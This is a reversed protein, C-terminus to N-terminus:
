YLSASFAIGIWRPLGPTYSTWSQTVHYETNFANKVLITADFRRDQRGLGIGFDALGYAPIWAYESNSTDYNVRGIYHYNFNAHFLRTSLVPLSYEGSLNGSFKPANALTQGNANYFPVALDGKEVPNPLLIDSDYFAHNWAGALRLTLHKIGTYAADLEFGRAQVLPANGTISTYQPTGVQQTLVPDLIYVTQQFNDLFDVYIDANATLTDHLYSGKLGLEYANSSEPAVLRSIPIGNADVGSIQSIGAKAGHQWSLYSTIQPTFAYSFSVNGSPLTGIYPQAEVTPYQKNYVIGARIAKAAAVQAQEGATLAGYTAVNFYHQAVSNALALQGANNITLAGAASTNFGSYAAPYLAFAAPSKASLPGPDLAAGFGDDSIGNNQRTRRDERTLRYGTTVTFQNGLHWHIQGFAAATRNYNWTVNYAQVRNLSDEMLQLGATNADLTTYQAYNADYAGADSGYRARVGPNNNWASTQLFFLGAKYDFFLSKDSTASFEESEQRYRADSGGDQTVNWEGVGNSAQFLDHEFGTTSQLTVHPLDWTAKLLGGYSANLVGKEDEDFVPFSLYNQYANPDAQTFYSRTYKNQTTNQVATRVSAPVSPPITAGNPVYTPVGDAYTAPLQLAQTLGNVFETGRPKSNVSLLVSFDDTPTLLFQVRGLTRDINDWSYRGQNDPYSQNYPGQQQDRSFTVRFALLDDIVAGGAVATGFVTSLQGGTLSVHAEPAFSPLNNVVNIVGTSTNIGGTSGQPGREVSISGVDVYDIEVGLEPLVWPVGDVTIGLSPDITTSGGTTIGRISTSSTMPNGYNWQVNGIRRLTEAVSVANLQQLETGSVISISQPIDKQEQLVQVQPPDNRGSVVVTDLQDVKRAGGTGTTRSTSNSADDSTLAADAAVVNVDSNAAIVVGPAAASDAAPGQQSAPSNAAVIVRDPAPASEEARVSPSAGLLCTGVALTAGVASVAKRRFHFGPWPDTSDSYSM